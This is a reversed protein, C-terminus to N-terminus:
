YNTSVDTGSDSTFTFQFANSRGNLGQSGTLVVSNLSVTIGGSRMQTWDDVHAVTSPVDRHWFSVHALPRVGKPWPNNGGYAAIAASFFDDDDSFLPPPGTYGPSSSGQALSGEGIEVAYGGGYQDVADWQQGGCGIYQVMDGGTPVFESAFAGRALDNAYVAYIRASKPGIANVDFEGDPYGWLGPGLAASCADPLAVLVHGSAAGFDFRLNYRRPELENSRLADVLGEGIGTADFDLPISMNVLWSPSTLRPELPNLIGGSSTGGVPRQITRRCQIRVRTVQELLSGLMNDEVATAAPSVRVQSAELMYTHFGRNPAIEDDAGPNWTGDDENAHLFQVQTSILQAGGRGAENSSISFGSCKAGLASFSEKTNPGLHELNWSRLDEGGSTHPQLM